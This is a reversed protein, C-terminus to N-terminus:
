QEHQPLHLPPNVETLGHINLRQQLGQLEQPQMGEDSLKQPSHNDLMTNSDQKCSTHPEFSKIEISAEISHSHHM